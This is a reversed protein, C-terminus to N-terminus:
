HATDEVNGDWCGEKKLHEIMIMQVVASINRANPGYKVKMYERLATLVQADIFVQLRKTAKVICISYCM